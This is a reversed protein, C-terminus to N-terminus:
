TSKAWSRRSYAGLNFLRQSALLRSHWARMMHRKLGKAGTEPVQRQGPAGAVPVDLAAPLGGAIAARRVPRMKQRLNEM